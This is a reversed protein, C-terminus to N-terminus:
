RCTLLWTRLEAAADARDAGGLENLDWIMQIPDALNVEVQRVRSRLGQVPFVSRDNPLRVIINSDGTGLAQVLGLRAPDVAHELYLIALTPRRWPRILDPGVDASVALQGGLEGAARVTVETVPDLTYFYQESGGPGPYEALFQDLLDERHARWGRAGVREVMDLEALRALVQSSRPQSVGAVEALAGAGTGGVDTSEILARIVAWSGSGTPLTRRGPKPAKTSLRQRFILGHARLDFDGQSDAWSWGHKTLTAGLTEPVYPVVLLPQGVSLATDRVRSLGPVENLYPARKRLVVAFRAGQGESSLRLVADPYRAAAGTAQQYEVALGSEELWRVAEM